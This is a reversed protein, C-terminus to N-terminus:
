RVTGGARSVRDALGDLVRVQAPPVTVELRLLDRETLTFTFFSCCQTERRTLDRVQDARGPAPELLLTLRTDSVREVTRLADAFLADFEAVRLPREATPLTCAAPAWVAPTTESM